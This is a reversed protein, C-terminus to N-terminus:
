LSRLLMTVGLLVENSGVGGDNAPEAILGQVRLHIRDPERLLRANSFSAIIKGSQLCLRLTKLFRKM